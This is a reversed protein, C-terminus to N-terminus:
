NANITSIAIDKNKKIEPYIKIHYSKEEHLTKLSLYM